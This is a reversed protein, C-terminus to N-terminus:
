GLGPHGRPLPLHRARHGGSEPRLEVGATHHVIMKQLPFYALGWRVEGFRDFRITEDAGWASRPIVGPGTTLASAQAGLGLPAAAEEAGANMALVAVGDLPRDATVRVVRKDAATMVSGYTQGDGRAAGVEDVEVHAAPM